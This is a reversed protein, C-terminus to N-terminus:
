RKLGLLHLLLSVYRFHYVSRMFPLKWDDWPPYRFSFELLFNRRMVSKRHSFMDFSFKGHYQGFGSAGVGGFPLTDCAFQWLVAAFASATLHLFIM